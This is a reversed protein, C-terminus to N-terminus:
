LLKDCCEFKFTIAFDFREGNKVDLMGEVWHLNPTYLDLFLWDDKDFNTVFKNLKTIANSTPLVDDELFLIYPAQHKAQL